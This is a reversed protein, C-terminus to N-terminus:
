TLLFATILQKENGDVDIVEIGGFRTVTHL